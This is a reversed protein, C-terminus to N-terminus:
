HNGGLANRQREDGGASGRKEAREGADANQQIDGSFHFLGSENEVSIYWYACQAVGRELSM